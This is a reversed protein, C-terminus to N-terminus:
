DREEVSIGAEKLLKTFVGDGSCLNGSFTGDYIKGVGCMPSCSKLIAHHAGKEQAQRLAEKAGEQFFSTVDNGEVSLVREKQIESAPRPTPLGGLEEPCLPLAEGKEVMAILDARPKAKGDYRCNVGALCASVIIMHLTM